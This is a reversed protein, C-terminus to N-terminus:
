RFDSLSLTENKSKFETLSKMDEPEDNIYLNFKCSLSELLSVLENIGKYYKEGEITGLELTENNQFTNRIKKYPMGTFIKLRKLSELDLFDSNIYVSIKHKM